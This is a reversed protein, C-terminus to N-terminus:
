HEALAFRHGDHHVGYHAFAYIKHVKQEPADTASIMKKLADSIGRNKGLFSEVDKNWFRGEAKWYDDM